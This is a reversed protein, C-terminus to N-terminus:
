AVNRRPYIQLLGPTYIPLTSQMQSIPAYRFTFAPIGLKKVWNNTYVTVTCEKPYGMVDYSFMMNEFDNNLIHNTLVQQLRHKDVIFLKNVTITLTATYGSIDANTVVNDVTPKRSFQLYFFGLLFSLCLIILFIKQKM